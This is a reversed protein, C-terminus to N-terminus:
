PTRQSEGRSQSQPSSPPERSERCRGVQESRMPALGLKAERALRVNALVSAVAAGAAVFPAIPAERLELRAIRAEAAALRARLNEFATM